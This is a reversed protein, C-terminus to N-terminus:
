LILMADGFSYFRYRHKIALAYLEQIKTIMQVESAMHSTGPRNGIFAAVMLLLSSKPLHFNTFLGDVAQFSYGPYIFIDTDSSGAAFSGDVFHSELTRTSTTGIAIISTRAEKAQNLCDKVEPSLYTRETHLVNQTIEASRLPLFTGLGVHLTIEEWGHGAEKLSKLLSETFHLGATPAAASGLEKAYVTQYHSEKPDEAHIYPPLPVHGHREILDELNGAAAFTLLFTTMAPKPEVHTVTAALPIEKMRGSDSFFSMDSGAKLGKGGLLCRYTSEGMHELLIVEIDTDLYRAYLRAKRVKSNNAVLLSGLPLLGPLDKVTAHTVTDRARDYVMLRADHRPIVPQQAILESPLQFDFDSLLM